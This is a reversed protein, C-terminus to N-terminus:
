ARRQSSAAPHCRNLLVEAPAHDVLDVNLAETVAVAVAHTVQRANRALEVVQSPQAHVVQPQRREVGRGLTVAAVVDRVIAGDIGHIARHVVKVLEDCLGVLALDADHEIHHEAVGGAIVLPELAGKGPVLPIARVVDQAVPPAGGARAVGPLWGGVPVAGEPAAGPLPLRAEALPVEVQVVHALGIKVPGIGLHALRAGVHHAEPLLAAHVPEAEVHHVEYGLRLDKLVVEGALPPAEERVPGVHVLIQALEHRARPNVAHHGHPLHGRGRQLVAHAVRPRLVVLEGHAEAEVMKLDVVGGALLPLECLGVDPLQARNEARPLLAHLGPAAPVRKEPVVM